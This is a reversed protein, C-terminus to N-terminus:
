EEGGKDTGGETGKDRRDAQATARRSRTESGGEADSGADEAKKKGAKKPAPKFEGELVTYKKRGNDGYTDEHMDLFSKATVEFENGNENNKVRLVGPPVSPPTPKEAM